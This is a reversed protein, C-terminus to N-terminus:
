CNNCIKLRSIFNKNEELSFPSRKLDFKRKTSGPLSMFISFCLWIFLFMFLVFNTHPSTRPQSIEVSFQEKEIWGRPSPLKRM